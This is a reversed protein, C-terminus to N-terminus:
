LLRASGAVLGPRRGRWRMLRTVPLALLAAGIVLMSQGLGSLQTGGMSAALLAGVSIGIAVGVGGVVQTLVLVRITRHQIRSVDPRPIVEALASMRDMTARRSTTRRDHEGSSVVGLDASDPRVPGTHCM